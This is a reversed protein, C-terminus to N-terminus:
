RDGHPPGCKRRLTIVAAEPPCNYRVPLTSTGIGRNTYGQMANHRWEGSGYERRCRANLFPPGIWPLCIQGGHTHGCLYLDM